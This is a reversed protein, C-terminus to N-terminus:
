VALSIGHIDSDNLCGACRYLHRRIKIIKGGLRVPIILIAGGLLSCICLFKFIDHNLGAELRIGPLPPMEGVCVGVRNLFLSFIDRHLFLAACSVM